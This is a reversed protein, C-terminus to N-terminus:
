WHNSRDYCSVVSPKAISTKKVFCVDHIFEIVTNPEDLIGTGCRSSKQLWRFYQGKTNKLFQLEWLNELIILESQQKLNGTKGTVVNLGLRRTVTKASCPWLRVVLLSFFGTPQQLSDVPFWSHLALSNMVLGQYLTGQFFAVNKFLFMRYVKGKRSCIIDSYCSWWHHKACICNDLQQPERLVCSFGQNCCRLFLLRKPHPGLKTLCFLRVFDGISKPVLFHIYNSM